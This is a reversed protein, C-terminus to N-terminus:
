RSWEGQVGQCNKTLWLKSFAEAKNHIYLKNGLLWAQTLWQEAHKAGRHSYKELSWILLLLCTNPEM